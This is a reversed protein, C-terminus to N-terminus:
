GHTSQYFVILGLCLAHSVLPQPTEEQVTLNPLRLSAPFSHIFRLLREQSHSTGFMLDDKKQIVSTSTVWFLAVGCPYAPWHPRIISLIVYNDQPLNLNSISM